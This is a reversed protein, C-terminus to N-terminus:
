VTRVVTGEGVPYYEQGVPRRADGVHDGDLIRAVRLGLEGLLVLAPALRDELEEPMGGDSRM